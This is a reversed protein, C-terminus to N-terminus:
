HQAALWQSVEDGIVAFLARNAFSVLVSGIGIPRLTGKQDRLKQEIARRQEPDLKDLPILTASALFSAVSPPVEVNVIAGALGTLTCPSGLARPTEFRWGDVHPSYKRPYIAVAEMIDVESARLKSCPISFPDLLVGALDNDDQPHLRSLEERVGRGSAVPNSNLAEM